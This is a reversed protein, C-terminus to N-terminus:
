GTAGGVMKLAAFVTYVRDWSMVKVSVRRGGEKVEPSVTIVDSGSPDGLIIEGDPCSELLM